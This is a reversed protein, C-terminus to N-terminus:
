WFMQMLFYYIVGSVVGFSVSSWIAEYRNMDDEALDFWNHFQIMYWLGGSIVAFLAVTKVAEM